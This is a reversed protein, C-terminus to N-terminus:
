LVVTTILGGHQLRNTVHKKSVTRRGRLPRLLDPGPIGGLNPSLHTISLTRSWRTSILSRLTHSLSGDYRGAVEEPVVKIAVDRGLRGDHVRYVEGMGGEGIKEVVRYHGLTRGILDRM